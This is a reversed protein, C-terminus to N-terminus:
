RDSQTKLIHFDTGIRRHFPPNAAGLLLGLDSM